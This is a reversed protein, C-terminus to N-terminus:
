SVYENKRILVATILFKVNKSDTIQEVSKMKVDSLYTLRRLDKYLNAVTLISEAEGSIDVKPVLRESIETKELITYMKLETYQLGLTELINLDLLLGSWIVRNQVLNEIGTLTTEFEQKDQQIQKIKQLSTSKNQITTSLEDSKKQLDHYRFLFGVYAGILLFVFLSIITTTLAVSIAVPFVTKAQKKPPLLNVEHM